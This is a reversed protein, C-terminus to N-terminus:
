FPAIFRRNSDRLVADLLEHAARLRPGEVATKRQGGGSGLM